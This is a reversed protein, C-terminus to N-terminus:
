QKRGTGLESDSPVLPQDLTVRVQVLAPRVVRVLPNPAVVPADEAFSFAHTDLSVPGTKVEVVQNVFALPGEILVDRPIAESDRLTAGAAPEGILEVKVPVSRRELQDLQVTIVNPEISIVEISDDPVLVNDPALSVNAVGAQLGSLDVLVDVDWPRLQRVARGNGRLQVTVEPAQSVIVLKEPKNNYTVSASITKEALNERTDAATGYWMGVAILVALVRYMWLSTRESV